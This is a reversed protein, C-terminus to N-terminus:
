SRLRARAATLTRGMCRADRRSAQGGAWLQVTTSTVVALLAAGCDTFALAAVAEAAGESPPLCRLVRPVGVAFMDRRANVGVDTTRWSM